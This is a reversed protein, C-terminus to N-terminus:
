KEKFILERALKGNIYYELEKGCCLNIDQANVLDKQYIFDTWIRKIDCLTIYDTKSIIKNCKPCKLFMIIKKNISYQV